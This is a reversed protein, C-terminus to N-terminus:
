VVKGTREESRAKNRHARTVNWLWFMLIVGWLVAELYHATGVVQGAARLNLIRRILIGLWLLCVAVWIWARVLLARPSGMYTSAM